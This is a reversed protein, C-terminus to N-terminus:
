NERVLVAGPRGLHDALAEVCSMHDARQEAMANLDPNRRMPYGSSALRAVLQRIEGPDTNVAKPRLGIVLALERAMRAGEERLLLAPGFLDDDDILFEAALALDLMAGLTAPWGAGTSVSQFYILSPHNSHSQRVTACWNRGEELDNRLARTNRTAAFRELLTLACPPDGAATNLKIIGIDRRSVSGQVELLYTVAMTMVALGCFGAGLVVWRAGGTPNSQTLGVTVLSSGVLYVSDFYSKLPPEFEQRGTYCMMGFALALLAMWVAFCLVLVLPAFADSLGRRKGRARKWIPLLIFLLRKAVKLSAKSGGPVVVTQFVDALTLLALALGAAFLLTNSAMPPM